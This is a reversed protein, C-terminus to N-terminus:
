SLISAISRSAESPQTSGNSLSTTTRSTLCPGHWCTVAHCGGGEGDGVGLLDSDLTRMEFCTCALGLSARQRM